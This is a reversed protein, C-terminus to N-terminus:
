WNVRCFIRPSISGSTDWTDIKLATSSGAAAFQDVRPSGGGARAASPGRGRAPTRRTRTVPALGGDGHRRAPDLPLTTSQAWGGATRRLIEVTAAAGEEDLRVVAIQTGDGAIAVAGIGGPGELPLPAAPVVGHGLDELTGVHVDADDVIAVLGGGAVVGRAGIPLTAFSGSPTTRVLAGRDRLDRGVFAM